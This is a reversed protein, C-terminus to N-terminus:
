SSNIFPRLCYNVHPKFHKTLSYSCRADRGPLHCWPLPPIASHLWPTSSEEGELGTEGSVADLDLYAAYGTYENKNMNQHM